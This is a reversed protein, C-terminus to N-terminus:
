AQENILLEKVPVMGLKVFPVIASVLLLVAVVALTTYINYENVILGIKESVASYYIGIFSCVGIIVAAGTVM